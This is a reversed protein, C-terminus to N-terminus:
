GRFLLQWLGGSSHVSTLARAVRLMDAGRPYILYRSEWRPGFKNKFQFLNKYGYFSNMNEFLQAVGKELARQPEPLTQLPANALSAERFGEAQLQLLSEAILQDMTGPISQSRRRMVDLVVATNGRYPLWSCFAQVKGDRVSFFVPVDRISDLSFRGLTFSRESLHRETLWEQSISELQESVASDSRHSGDYRHVVMGTKAAKHVATRLHARKGGALSFNKLNLIAEEAVKISRLDFSQYVPLNADCADYICATWGNHACLEMYALVASRFDAPPVLPDGCAFAVNGRVAYAVLGRGEAVPMHHKDSQIAFAAASSYGHRAFIVGTAAPSAEMRRRMIVPRLILFLLYLRALWGAIQLSGLFRVAGATKPVIHPELILIGSRFTEKLPTSQDLWQYNEPRRSLGLYGYLFVAAFLLPSMWLVRRLSVPDTRAYYRKRFYLLYLLLLGAVLSHQLNFARAMHIVISVLLALVAVYWALERRKALSRTVQLLAIGSFILLPRSPQTVALPFWARVGQLAARSRPWIASLLNLVGMCAILFPALLHLDSVEFDELWEAHRLHRVILVTAALLALGLMIWGQYQRIGSLMQQALNGFYFGLLATPVTWLIGATWNLATYRWLPKGFAGCAAPVIIRFGFAFRSGILIWDSHQCVWNEVKRFHPNSGFRKELWERGRARAMLYYIQNAMCNAAYAVLMVAPLHLIGRHALFAAGLLFVEGEVLVGFFLLLYGYRLLLEEM